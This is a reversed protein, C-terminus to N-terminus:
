GTDLLAVPSSGVRCVGLLAGGCPPCAWAAAPPHRAPPLAPALRTQEPMMRRIAEMTSACSTSMFGCHRVKMCGSPFVHQLSRRLFELVDLHTTRPRARGSKRSTCTVTRDQLSVIRRHSIAVHFGYPALYPWATTRQPTAPSQVNWPRQWVQPDIPELLGATGMDEAFIARSIPSLANVPVSFNARAPLWAARDKSLGGGPVMSHMHPHYPLPRGWTHLIGTFGPLDTGLFRADHALRKLAEASAKCLAQSAPKPHARCCPRLTEPVTCPILFSPGPLPKELQQHLWQEAKAHQGPPGHRNGCSHLIRHRGGWPQCAYLSYGYHGTRCTRLAPIAKHHSTPLTPHRASYEPADATVIDTITTM